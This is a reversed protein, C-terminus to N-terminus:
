SCDRGSSKPDRDWKAFTFEFESMAEFGNAAAHQELPLYCPAQATIKLAERPVKVELSKAENWAKGNVTFTTRQKNSTLLIPISSDPTLKPISKDDNMSLGSQISSLHLSDSIKNGECAATLLVLAFAVSSIGSVRRRTVRASFYHM